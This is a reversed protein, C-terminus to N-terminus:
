GIPTRAHSNGGEEIDRSERAQAMSRAYLEALGAELGVPYEDPNRLRRCGAPLAALQRRARERARAPTPPAYVCRGARFVPVLLDEDTLGPRLIRRRTPDLPDVMTLPPVPTSEADCILDAVLLGTGPERFRRVGQVGPISTKSSDDSLKIRPRWRGDPARFAALKYVGDLASDGRATVLSTGVGWMGIRAGQQKLGEIVFEDLNGSGIIATDTFDAEDLMRRADQSLRVLDGSDLRIGALRQGRARLVKGVEIAHGVGSLSDYTDVLLVTGDPTADAFQQFATRESDFSMVWSHAQTGRVPIGFRLGALANSTATCGGIYAARSATLAGDPGQARRLGFELVPDGGAAHCVRAAETAVLTAFNIANLLTSEVFQAQFIPGRVRLLPEQAFVVTGEPVADIDLRLRLDRLACLLDEGFVPRGRETRLGALYALEASTFHLVALRAVADALGCAIAYGGGFPHRRFFLHFVAEREAQGARLYAQVMTLEYLDLLLAPPGSDSM